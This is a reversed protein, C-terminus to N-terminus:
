LDYIKGKRNHEALYKLLEIVGSVRKNYPM